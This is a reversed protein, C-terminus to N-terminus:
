DEKNNLHNTLRYWRKRCSEGSRYLKEGIEGWTMKGHHKRLYTDEYKEWPKATRLEPNVKDENKNHEPTVQTTDKHIVVVKDKPKNDDELVKIVIYRCVRIKACDFDYPVSVVDAPDVKVCVIIKDKDGYMNVYNLSGVHLGYSCGEDPDYVVKNREMKIEEGPHNDITSTYYDLYDPRVSKYAMFNGDDFIQIKENKLFDFLRMISPPNPNNLCRKWFNEFHKFDYGECRLDNIADVLSQPMEVNELESPIETIKIKVSCSDGKIKGDSYNELAIHEKSAIELFRAEDFDTDHSLLYELAAVYNDKEKSICVFDHKSESYYVLENNRILVKKNM